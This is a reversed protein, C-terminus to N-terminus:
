YRYSKIRRMELEIDKKKMDERKDYEKKGKCIGIEVKCLKNNKIYVKLPILTFGKRNVQGSIKDIEKRHLLLKRKRYPDPRFISSSHYPAIHMNHVFIEGNEILCFADDINVNHERVSKIESGKLEIGAEYTDYIEYNKKAKRNTSVIEIAM